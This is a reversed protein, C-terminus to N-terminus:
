EPGETSRAINLKCKPPVDEIKPAMLKIVVIILM